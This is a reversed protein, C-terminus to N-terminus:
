AVPLRLMVPVSCDTVVSGQPPAAPATDFVDVGSVLPPVMPLADLAGVGPIMVEQGFVIKSWPVTVIVTLPCASM